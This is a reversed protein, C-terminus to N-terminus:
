NRKKLLHAEDAISSPIIKILWTKSTLEAPKLAADRNIDFVRGSM